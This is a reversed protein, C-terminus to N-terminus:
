TEEPADFARPTEDPTTLTIGAREIWGTGKTREVQEVEVCLLIVDTVSAAVVSGQDAYSANATGSFEVLSIKAKKLIKLIKRTRFMTRLRSGLTHAQTDMTEISISVIIQRNGVQTKTRVGTTSDYDIRTEDIGRGKEDMLTLEAKGQTLVPFAEQDGHFASAEATGSWTVDHDPLGTAEVVVGRITERIDEWNM